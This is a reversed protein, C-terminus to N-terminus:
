VKSMWYEYLDHLTIEFPTEPFWGTREKLKTNDGIIIPNDVPRILEESKQIKCQIGATEILLNLCDIIKRGIGSCVNYIEGPIGKELLSLYAKSVDRVDTFDRIINLDGVTTVPNRIGKKIEAIQKAFSSLVFREDQRPGFHNFSRTSVIDLNFGKVYVNAMYEQAVRAVAYPIIPNPPTTEKIPINDASVIGYQESSGVSLIRTEPTVKKVAELVNLFINFNNNFCEIPKQWSYAVSSFAALHIIFHPKSAEFIKILDNMSLLDVNAYRVSNRLAPDIFSYDPESLDLATIQAKSDNKLITEILHGAVFGSAGTITYNL